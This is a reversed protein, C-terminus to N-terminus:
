SSIRAASCPPQERGPNPSIGHSGSWGQPWPCGQHSGPARAQRPAGQEQPAPPGPERGGRGEQRRGQLHVEAAGPTALSAPSRPGLHLLSQHHQHCKQRGSQRGAQCGQANLVPCTPAETNRHPSSERRGEARDLWKHLLAERSLGPSAKLALSLTPRPPETSLHVPARSTSLTPPTFTKSTLGFVPGATRQRHPRPCTM